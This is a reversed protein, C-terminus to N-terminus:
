REFGMRVQPFCVNFSIHTKTQSGHGFYYFANPRTLLQKLKNIIILPM